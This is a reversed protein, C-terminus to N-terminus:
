KRVERELKKRIYAMRNDIKEATNNMIQVLDAIEEEPMDSCINALKIKKLLDPIWKDVLDDIDYAKGGPTKMTREVETVSLMVRTRADILGPHIKRPDESMRRQFGRLKELDNDRILSVDDYSIKPADAKMRVYMIILALVLILALVGFFVYVVPFGLATDADAIANAMGEINILGMNYMMLGASGFLLLVILGIAFRKGWKFEEYKM